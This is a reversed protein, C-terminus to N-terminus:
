DFYYNIIYERKKMDVCAKKAAARETFDMTIRYYIGEKTVSVNACDYDKEFIKAVTEAYTKSGILGLKVTTDYQKEIVKPAENRTITLRYLKTKGNEGTVQIYATNKGIKLNLKNGAVVKTGAKDSYVKWTAGKSVKVKVVVSKTANSVKATISTKGLVADSPLIVKTIAVEAKKLFADTKVITFTSFKIIHFRIGYVGNGYDVLEGQILEKEGDSHEIYVALRQLLAAREEPDSPIDIGTLPLTIDAQTSPMNTEVSVPNGVLEISDGAEANMVGVTFLARGSVAERETEEKVPVLRFYLDEETQQDISRLTESSLSIKAAESDIELNIEGESLSGISTSPITVKTEAVENQTAPIVIRATDKGEEKLKQVTEEAKEKEYTVADAKKGDATTTREITIKSVTSDTDGQKVDVTIKEVAPTPTAAGQTPAAGGGPNSPNDLERPSRVVDVTYAIITRGDQATIRIIVPNNGINLSIEGSAQGSTVTTGNVTITANTNAATPTIRIETVSNDVSINYSTTGTSFNPYLIYGGTQLNSLAAEHSITTIVASAVSEPSEGLANIATVQFTYATQASLGTVTIPSSIGTTTLGAQKVGNKYVYVKYGTIAAGNDKPATFSVTASEEGALATIGTPADPRTIMNSYTKVVRSIPDGGDTATNHTMYYRVQYTHGVPLRIEATDLDLFHCDTVETWTNSGDVQMEFGKTVAADLIDRSDEPLQITLVEGLVNTTSIFPSRYGGLVTWYSDHNSDWVEVEDSQDMSVNVIEQSNIKKLAEGMEYASESSTIQMGNVIMERNTGATSWYGTVDINSSNYALVNDLVTVDTSYFGIISIGGSAYGPYGTSNYGTINNSQITGTGGFIYIAYEYGDDNRLREPYDTGKFTNYKISFNGQRIAIANRFANSEDFNCYEITINNAEPESHVAFANKLGPTPNNHFGKINVYKMEISASSKVNIVACIGDELTNSGNKQIKNQITLNNLKLYGNSSDVKLFTRQNLYNGLGYFVVGDSRIIDEVVGTGAEITAGNGNITLMRSITGGTYEYTTGSVLNITSVNSDSMYYGLEESDYATVVSSVAARSIVVKYYSIITGGRGTVKIYVITSGGASLDAEAMGTIEQTYNADTFLRVTADTEASLDNLGISAISSIVQIAAEKPAGASGDQTGATITKGLVRLLEAGGDSHTTGTYNVQVMLRTVKMPSGTCAANDYWEIIRYRDAPDVLIRSGDSQRASAIQTYLPLFAITEWYRNDNFGVDNHHADYYDKGSQVTEQYNPNADILSDNAVQLVQGNTRLTKVGQAGVPAKVFMGILRTVTGNDPHTNNSDIEDYETGSYLKAGEAYKTNGIQVIGPSTLARSYSTFMNLENVLDLDSVAALTGFFTSNTYTAYGPKVINLTYSDYYNMGSVMVSYKGGSYAASNVTVTSAPTTNDLISFSSENLGLDAMIVELEAVYPTHSTDFSIMKVSSVSIPEKVTITFSKTFDMTISTGSVVRASVTVQGASTTNLTNGGSISAGTGAADTVQWDVMQNTADAPLVQANLTLATGATATDPVGVIDTVAQFTSAQAFEARPIAFVWGFILTVCLISAFLRRKRQVIKM